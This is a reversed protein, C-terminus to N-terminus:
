TILSYDSFTGPGTRPTALRVGPMAQCDPPRRERSVRGLGGPATPSGHLFALHRCGPPSSPARRVSLPRWWSTIPVKQEWGSSQGAPSPGQARWGPPPGDGAWAARRQAESSSPRSGMEGGSGRCVSRRQARGRSARPSPSLVAPWRGLHPVDHSGPLVKWFTYRDGSTPSAGGEQSPLKTKLTRALASPTVGM